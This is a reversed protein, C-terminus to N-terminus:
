CQEIRLITMPLWATLGILISIGLEAWNQSCSVALGGFAVASILWLQLILKIPAKLKRKM